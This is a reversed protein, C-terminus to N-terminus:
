GCLSADVREREGRMPTYEPSRNRLAEPFMVLGYSISGM